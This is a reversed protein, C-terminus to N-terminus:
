LKPFDAYGNDLNLLMKFLVPLCVSQVFSIKKIGFLQVLTYNWLSQILWANVLIEIIIGILSTDFIM